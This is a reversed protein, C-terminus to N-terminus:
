NNQNLLVVRRMNGTKQSGSVSLALSNPGASLAYKQFAVEGSILNAMTLIKLNILPPRMAKIKRILTMNWDLVLNSTILSVIMKSKVNVPMTM